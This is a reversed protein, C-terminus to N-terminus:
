RNTKKQLDDLIDFFSKSMNVFDQPSITIIAWDHFTIIRELTSRLALRVKGGETRVVFDPLEGLQQQSIGLAQMFQLEADDM